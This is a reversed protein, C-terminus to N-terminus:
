GRGKPGTWPDSGPARGFRARRDRGRGCRRRRVGRRPVGPVGPPMRFLGRRRGRLDGGAGGGGLAERLERVEPLLFSVDIPEEGELSDVVICDDIIRIGLGILDPEFREAAERATGIPDESVLYPDLLEVEAGADEAATRVRELGYAPVPTVRQFPNAHILLVRSRRGAAPSRAPASMAPQTYSQASM